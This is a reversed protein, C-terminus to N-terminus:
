GQGRISRHKSIWDLLEFCALRWADRASAGQERLDKIRKIVDPKTPIAAEQQRLHEAPEEIPPRDEQSTRKEGDKWPPVKDFEDYHKALHDKAKAKDEDGINVGGRGGMLVVGAASVGRWVLTGDPLHHPLHCDQKTYQGDTGSPGTVVACARRLQDISYKSADFDWPTDEPAKEYEKPESHPQQNENMKDDEPSQSIIAEIPTLRTLPVGPLINKTLVALGTFRLGQCINGQDTPEVSRCSAEISVHYIHAEEPIEPSRDFMDILTYQNPCSPCKADIQVSIICEAAGDEYEADEVRVGELIKETHNLNPTVGILTRTGRILEDETYVNDNMSTLPFLAECEYLKKGEESRLFRITPEAWKFAETKAQSGYPKTDDLELKNIWAYYAEDGRKCPGGKPSTDESDGTCYRTQFQQYIKEFDASRPM